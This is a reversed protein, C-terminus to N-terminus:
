KNTVGFSNKIIYNYNLFITKIIGKIESILIHNEKNENIEVLKILISIEKLPYEILEELNFLLNSILKDRDINTKQIILSNDIIANLTKM